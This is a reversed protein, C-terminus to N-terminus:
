LPEETYNLRNGVKQIVNSFWLDFLQVERKVAEEAPLTTKIVIFLEDWNEEPDSHLELYLPVRGFVREIYYPAELLVNLLDKNLLLFSIIEQTNEFIYRKELIDILQYPFLYISTEVIQKMQQHKYEQDILSFDNDTIYTILNYNDNILATQM